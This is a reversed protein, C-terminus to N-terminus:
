ARRRSPTGQGVREDTPLSVTMRIYLRGSKEFPMGIKRFGFRRYFDATEDRSDCWIGRAGAKRAYLLAHQLLTTGIGCGQKDSHTAFKRLRWDPADPFLSLVSALVGEHFAGFHIGVEDDVLVVDNESGGPCLVAARLPWTDRAHVLAIVPSAAIDACVM